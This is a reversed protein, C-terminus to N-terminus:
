PQSCCGPMWDLLLNLPSLLPNALRAVPTSCIFCGGCALVAKMNALARFPDSLHCLVTSCFVLDYLGWERGNLDYVDSIRYEVKSGLAEKAERFHQNEYAELATVEAGLSEFHFSFFGDAPGVDLVRKGRLSSPFCYRRLYPRLDYMGDTTHGNIELTHYWQGTQQEKQMTLYWNAIHEIEARAVAYAEEGLWSRAEAVIEQISAAEHTKLYEGIKTKLDTKDFM